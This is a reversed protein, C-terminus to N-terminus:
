YYYHLLLSSCCVVFLLCRVGFVKLTNVSIDIKLIKLNFCVCAIIGSHWVISFMCCWSEFFCVLTKALLCDLYCSFCWRLSYLFCIYAPSEAVM